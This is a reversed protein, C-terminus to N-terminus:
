EPRFSVVEPLDGRAVGPLVQPRGEARQVRTAWEARDNREFGRVQSWPVEVQGLAERLVIGESSVKTWGMLARCLVAVSGTLVLALAAPVLYVAGYGNRFALLCVVALALGLVVGFGMAAIAVTNGPRDLVRFTRSGEADGDGAGEVPPVPDVPRWSIRWSKGSETGRSM